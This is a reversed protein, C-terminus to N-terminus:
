DFEPLLSGHATILDDVLSCIQDPDLEAATHPDLMAAQYITQRKRTLAAEVTLLQVNINTQILAALQAPLKGVHTPQIGSGDVLCPVEVIAESPLNEILHQNVVNGNIVRPTGTEISHIIESGYEGSRKVEMTNAPDLMQDRQFEWFAIQAECRRPYEDLPINLTEILDPHDRKIYWPVYEAFHESSETVFYGFRKLLDYRVQNWYPVRGEAIVQHLLPYLDRTTGDPLRQELSLYFAMHNIGACIYRFQDEPISTDEALSEITQRVSHCLGVTKIKSARNIAGCNIAMPNVYNLLWADPCLKEMDACIDLLVPITRLGRMIGGIGLTDGITQRLGYKKPIEFDAVTAPEYGGVQITCIVYDAGDVAQKRDTTSKIVPTVHLTDALRHAVMESESLRVPDIDMLHITSVALEPFLLIDGLFNRTFVTSGAGIITIKPM